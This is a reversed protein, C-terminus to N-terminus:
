VAQEIRNLVSNADLTILNGNSDKFRYYKGTGSSTEEGVYQVLKQEPLSSRDRYWSNLNLFNSARLDKEKEANQIAITQAATQEKVTPESPPIQLISSLKQHLEELKRLLDEGGEQLDDYRLSDVEQILVSISQLLEDRTPIENRKISEKRGKKKKDNSM